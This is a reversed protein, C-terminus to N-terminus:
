EQWYRVRRWRRTLPTARGRATASQVTLSSQGRRRQLRSRDPVPGTQCRLFGNGRGRLCSGRGPRPVVTGVGWVRLQDSARPQEAIRVGQQDIAVAVHNDQHTDVGIVVQVARIVKPGAVASM